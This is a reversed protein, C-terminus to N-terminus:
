RASLPENNQRFRCFTYVGLALCSPVGCLKMPIFDVGTQVGAVVDWSAGIQTVEMRVYDSVLIFGGNFFYPTYIM